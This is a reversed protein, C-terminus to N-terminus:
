TAIGGTGFTPDLVGASSLRVLGAHRVGNFSSFSGAVLLRGDAQLETATVTANPGSGILFGIASELGLLVAVVVLIM